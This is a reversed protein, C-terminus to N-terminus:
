IIGLVANIETQVDLSNVAGDRNADCNLGGQEIGLVGNIVAQVDVANVSGSGNIDYLVVKGVTNLVENTEIAENTDFVISAKNRIESNTAIGAIPKVSFVVRGEGRGTADNPPLFGALADEPLKGTDPDLTRMTWKVRGKEIDLTADVDVWWSKSTKERHDAVNERSHWEQAEDEVDVSHSGWTVGLIKLTSWDLISDLDDTVLVEQAPAGADPKNEFCITYIIEESDSVLHRLGLGAPALKENPDSPTINEGEGPGGPGGCKRGGGQGPCPNTPCAPGPGQPPCCEEGAKSSSSQNCRCRKNKVANWKRKAEWYAEDEIRVYEEWEEAYKRKSKEYEARAQEWNENWVNDSHWKKVFCGGVLIVGIGVVVGAGKEMSKEPIPSTSSGWGVRRRAQQAQLCMLAARYRMGVQRNADLEIGDSVTEAYSRRM